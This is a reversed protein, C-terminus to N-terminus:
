GLFDPDPAALHFTVTNSGPDDVIGQSLDCRKPAKMCLRAGVIEEFYYGTGAPNALSREIARRFDVPRVLAGTSYHIGARVQFVYTRGGDTPTPISTALDPVLRAGTSGGVREFTVLGDNTLTLASW